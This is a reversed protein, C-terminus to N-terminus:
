PKEWSDGLRENDKKKGQAIQFAIKKRKKKKCAPSQKVLNQKVGDSYKPDLLSLSSGATVQTPPLVEIMGIQKTKM